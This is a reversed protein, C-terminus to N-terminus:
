AENPGSKGNVQRLQELRASIVARMAEAAGHTGAKLRAEILQAALSDKPVYDRLREFNGSSIQEDAVRLTRGALMM